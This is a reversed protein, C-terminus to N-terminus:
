QKTDFHLLQGVTVFRYGKEELQTIIRLVASADVPENPYGNMHMVIISGNKVKSVVNNVIMDENPNFGDDAVVDWQIAVAAAEHVLALDSPSFCGGPFRFLMTPKGTLQSIAMQSAGFDAIKDTNKLVDLYYCNTTYAKHAYSHSGIEFLPDSALDKAVDPYSQVWLGTLFLTAPTNTSRLNNILKEDYFSAVTGNARMEQMGYTMDADFTLAIEKKDRPGHFYIYSSKTTSPKPTPLYFIDDWKVYSKSSEKTQLTVFFPASKGSLLEIIFLLFLLLLFTSLLTFFSRHM